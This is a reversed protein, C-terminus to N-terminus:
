ADLWEASAAMVMRVAALTRDTRPPETRLRSVWVKAIATISGNPDFEIVAPAEAEGDEARGNAEPHGNSRSQQLAALRSKPDNAGFPTVM